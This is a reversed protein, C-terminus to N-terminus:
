PVPQDTHDIVSARGRLVRWLFAAGFLIAISGFTMGAVSALQSSTIANTMWLVGILAAAILACLLAVRIQRM